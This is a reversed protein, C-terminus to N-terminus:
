EWRVAGWGELNARWADVVRGAWVDVEREGVIARMAGELEGNEEGVYATVAKLFGPKGVVGKVGTIWGAGERMAEKAAGELAKVGALAEKRLSTEGSRDRSLQRDNHSGVYATAALVASAADRVYSIPVLSSLVLLTRRPENEEAMQGATMDLLLEVAETASSVLSPLTESAARGRTSGVAELTLSSLLALLNYYM